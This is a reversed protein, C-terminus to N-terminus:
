AEENDEGFISAPIGLAIQALACMKAMMRQAAEQDCGEVAMIYACFAATKIHDMLADLEKATKEETV